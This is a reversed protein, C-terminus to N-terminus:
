KKETMWITKSEAEFVTLPTYDLALSRLPQQVPDEILNINHM